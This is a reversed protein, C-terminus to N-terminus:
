IERQTSETDMQSLTRLFEEESLGSDETLSYSAKLQAKMQTELVSPAMFCIPFSLGLLAVRSAKLWVALPDMFGAQEQKPGWLDRCDLSFM